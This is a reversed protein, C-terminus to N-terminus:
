WNSCIQILSNSAGMRAIGQYWCCCCISEFKANEQESPKRRLFIQKVVKAFFNTTETWLHLAHNYSENKKQHLKVKAAPSKLKRTFETKAKIILIWTVIRKLNRLSNQAARFKKNSALKMIMFWRGFLSKEQWSRWAHRVMQQSRVNIDSTNHGVMNM